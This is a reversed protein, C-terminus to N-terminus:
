HGLEQVFLRIGEVGSPKNAETYLGLYAVTLGEVMPAVFRLIDQGDFSKDAAPNEWVGVMRFNCVVNPKSVCAYHMGRNREVPGNAVAEHQSIRRAGGFQSISSGVYLKTELAHKLALPQATKYARRRVDADNEDVQYKENVEQVYQAASLRASQACPKEQSQEPPEDDDSMDEDEFAIYDDVDILADLPDEVLVEDSENLAEDESSDHGESDIVPFYEGDEKDLHARSAVTVSAAKEEGVKRAKKPPKTVVRGSRRKSPASPTSAPEPAQARSTTRTRKPAAEVEESSERYTEYARKVQNTAAAAAARTSRRAAPESSPAGSGPTTTASLLSTATSGTFAHSQDDGSDDESDPIVRRSRLTRASAALSPTKPSVPKSVDHRDLIAAGSLSEHQRNALAVQEDFYQRIDMQPVPSPRSTPRRRGRGKVPRKAKPASAESGDFVTRSLLSMGVAEEGETPDQDGEALSSGYSYYQTITKQRRAPPKASGSARSSSPRGNARPADLRIQRSTEQSTSVSASAKAKSAKRTTPVAGRSVIAETQGAASSRVAGTGQMSTEQGPEHPDLGEEDLLSAFLRNAEQALTEGSERSGVSEEQDAVLGTRVNASRLAMSSRRPQHSSEGRGNGAASATRTNRLVKGSQMPAHSSESGGGGNEDGSAADATAYSLVMDNRRPQHSSEGRGNGAASATRTNRLVRGSQMPAHSSESGGGGDYGNSSAIAKQIPMKHNGSPETIGVIRVLTGPAVQM